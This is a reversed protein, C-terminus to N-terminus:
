LGSLRQKVDSFHYDEALIKEYIAKAKEGEGSLEYCRGLYYYHEITSTNVPENGIVKMLKEVALKTMGKQLFIKGILLSVSGYQESEMGIKQLASLARDVLKLQLFLRGAEFYEGGKEYLEAAKLSSANAKQLMEAALVYKGGKEFVEAAKLFDGTKLFM